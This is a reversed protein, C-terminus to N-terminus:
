LAAGVYPADDEARIFVTGNKFTKDRREFAEALRRVLVSADGTTGMDEGNM